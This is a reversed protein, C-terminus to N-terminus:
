GASIPVTKNKAYEYERIKQIVFQPSIKQLCVPKNGSKLCWNRWNEHVWECGICVDSAININETYAYFDKKTPGFLVVSPKGSLFHRLHVMGCEGDIHYKATKLLILLEDFTTKGCLNIDASKIKECTKDGLQVIVTDPWIKKLDHCLRYYKDLDWLRTSHNNLGDATGTGRQVTIFARESLGYKKLIKYTQEQPYVVFDDTMHILSGIDGQSLRNRSTIKTYVECLADGVSGARMCAGFFRNFSQVTEVWKALFSDKEVKKHYVYVAVPVRIFHIVMDYQYGVSQPTYMHGIFSHRFCLRQVVELLPLPVCIDIVNDSQICNKFQKLFNLALVIDGIGGELYFLIHTKSSSVPRYVPMRRFLQKFVWWILHTKQKCSSDFYKKHLTNCKSLAATSFDYQPM